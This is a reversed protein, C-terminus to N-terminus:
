QQYQNGFSMIRNMRNNHHKVMNIYSDFDNYSSKDVSGDEKGMNQSANMKQMLRDEVNQSLSKDHDLSLRQNVSRDDINSLSQIPRQEEHQSTAHYQKQNNTLLQAPYSFNSHDDDSLKKNMTISSMLGDNGIFEGANRQKWMAKKANELDELKGGGDRQVLSEAIRIQKELNDKLKMQRAQKKSKARQERLIKIYDRNESNDVFRAKYEELVNQRATNEKNERFTRLNEYFVEREIQKNSRFPPNASSIEARYILGKNQRLAALAQLETLEPDEGFIFDTLDDLKQDITTLM